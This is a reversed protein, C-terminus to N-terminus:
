WFSVDRSDISWGLFIIEDVFEVLSNYNERKIDFLDVGCNPCHSYKYVEEKGCCPCDIEVIEIEYSPHKVDHEEELHTELKKYDERQGCKECEGIQKLRTM